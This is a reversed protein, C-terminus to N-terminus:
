NIALDLNIELHSGSEMMFGIALSFSSYPGDALAKVVINVRFSGFVSAIKRM